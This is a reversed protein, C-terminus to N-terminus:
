SDVSFLQKLDDVSMDKFQALDKDKTMQYIKEEITNHVIFHHM